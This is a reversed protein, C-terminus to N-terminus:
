FTPTMSLTLRDEGASAESIEADRGGAQDEVVVM